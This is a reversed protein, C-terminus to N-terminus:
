PWSRTAPPGDGAPTRTRYAPPSWDLTERVELPLERQLGHIPCPFDWLTSQIQQSTEERGRLLVWQDEGGHPCKM